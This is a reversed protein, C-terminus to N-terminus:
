SHSLSTRVSSARLALTFASAPIASSSSQVSDCSASAQHALFGLTDVTMVPALRTSCTCSFM